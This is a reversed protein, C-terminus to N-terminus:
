FTSSNSFNLQEHGNLFGYELEPKDTQKTYVMEWFEDYDIYEDYEDYIDCTKLFQQISYEASNYYAKDNLNFLFRWGISSKGIHVKDPMYKKAAEYDNRVVCQIILLKREDTMKPIAYYNCGM